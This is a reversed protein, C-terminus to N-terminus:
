SANGGMLRIAADYLAKAEELEARSLALSARMHAMEWRAKGMAAGLKDDWHEALKPSAHLAIAELLQNLHENLEDLCQGYMGELM